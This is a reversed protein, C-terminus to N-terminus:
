AFSRDNTGIIYLMTETQVAFNVMGHKDVWGNVDRDEVWSSAIVARGAVLKVKADDVEDDRVPYGREKGGQERHQEMYLWDGKCGCACGPEGSYAHTVTEASCSAIARRTEAVTLNKM